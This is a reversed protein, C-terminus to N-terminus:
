IIRKIRFRNSIFILIYYSLWGYLINIIITSKIINFLYSIGYNHINILYLIGYNLSNYLVLSIIIMLLTSLSNNSSINNFLIVIWGLCFFIFMNLILTDTFGLDYILGFIALFKLYRTNDRCFYPYIIPIAVVIFLPTLLSPSTIQYNIFNSIISDLLMSLVMYISSIIM